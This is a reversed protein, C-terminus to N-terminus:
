LHGGTKLQPCDYRWESESEPENFFSNNHHNADSDTGFGFEYDAFIIQDDIKDTWKNENDHLYDVIEDENIDNPIEIEVEAFKHYVSRQQIKIKM